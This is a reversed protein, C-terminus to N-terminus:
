EEVRFTREKVWRSGSFVVRIQQESIEVREVKLNFQFLWTLRITPGKTFEVILNDSYDDQLKATAAITEPLIVDVSPNLLSLIDRIMQFVNYALLADDIGIIGVPNAGYINSQSPSLKEAMGPIRFEDPNILVDSGELRYGLSFQKIPLNVADPASLSIRGNTGFVEKFKWDKTALLSLKDAGNRDMTFNGAHGVGIYQRFYAHAQRIYQRGHFAGASGTAAYSSQQQHEHLFELMQEANMSASRHGVVQYKPTVIRFSPYETVGFGSVFQPQEEGDIMVPVFGDNIARLVADDTFVTKQMTQCPQCWKATIYVFLLKGGEAAEDFSTPRYRRWNISENKFSSQVPQDIVLRMPGTKKEVIQPLSEVVGPRLPHEPRPVASESRGDQDPSLAQRLEEWQRKAEPSVVGGTADTGETADQAAPPKSQPFDPQEDGIQVEAMAVAVAAASKPSAQAFAAVFLIIAVTLIGILWRQEFPAMKRLAFEAKAGVEFWPSVPRKKRANVVQKVCFSELRGQLSRIM